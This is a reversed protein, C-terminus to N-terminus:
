DINGTYVVSVIVFILQVVNSILPISVANLIDHLFTAYIFLIDEDADYMLFFSKNSKKMSINVDVSNLLYRNMNFTDLHFKGKLLGNNKLLDRRLLAGQNNLIKGQQVVDLHKDRLHRLRKGL